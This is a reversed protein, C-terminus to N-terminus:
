APHAAVPDFYYGPAGRDNHATNAPLDNVWVDQDYYNTIAGLFFRVNEVSLPRFFHVDVCTSLSNKTVRYAGHTHGTLNFREARALHPYHTIYLSLEEIDLEVGQGEPIIEEFYPAFDADSLVDHNGRILIKHGNFRAIEPLSEPSNKYLADGNVYVLDDPTVLANHEAILRETMEETTTFPRPFLMLRPDGVHWDSTFFTQGMMQGYHMALELCRLLHM